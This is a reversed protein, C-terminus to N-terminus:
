WFKVKPPISNQTSETKCQIKILLNNSYTTRPNKWPQLSLAKHKLDFFPFTSELWGLTSMQVKYQKSIYIATLKNLDNDGTAVYWPIKGFIQNYVHSSGMFNTSNQM